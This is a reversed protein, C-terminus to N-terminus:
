GGVHRPPEQAPVQLQSAPLTLLLKLTVLWPNSGYLSSAEEYTPLREYIDDDLVSQEAKSGKLCATAVALNRIVETTPTGSSELRFYFDEALHTLFHCVSDNERIKAWLPELDNSRRFLYLKRQAGILLLATPIAYREEASLQEIRRHYAQALSEMIIEHDSM